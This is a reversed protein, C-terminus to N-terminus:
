IARTYMQNLPPIQAAFEAVRANLRLYEAEIDGPDRKETEHQYVLANEIKQRRLSKIATAAQRIKAQDRGSQARM